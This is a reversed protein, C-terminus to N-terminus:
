MKHGHAGMQEVNPVWTPGTPAWPCLIYPGSVCVFILQYKDSPIAIQCSDLTHVYNYKADPKPKPNRTSTGKDM